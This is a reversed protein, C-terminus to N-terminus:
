PYMVTSSPHSVGSAVLAESAPEAPPDDPMPESYPAEPAPPTPSAAELAPPKGDHLSMASVEVAYHTINKPECNFRSLDAGGTHKAVPLPNRCYRVVYACLEFGVYLARLVVKTRLKGEQDRWEQTTLYGVCIVPNGKSLSEHVNVALDGWTEV